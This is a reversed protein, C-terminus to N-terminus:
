QDINKRFLGIHMKYMSGIGLLLGINVMVFGTTDGRYFSNVSWCLDALLYMWSSYYIKGFFIFIAGFILLIGGMTVINTLFIEHM